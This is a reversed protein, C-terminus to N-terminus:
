DDLALLGASLDSAYPIFSFDRDYALEIAKGIREDHPLAFAPPLQM